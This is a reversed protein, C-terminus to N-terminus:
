SPAGAGAGLGARVEPKGLFREVLRGGEQQMVTREYEFDFERQQPRSSAELAPPVQIQWPLWPLPSPRAPPAPVPSLPRHIRPSRAAPPTTLRLPPAQLPTGCCRSAAFAHTHGTTGLRPGGRPGQMAGRVLADLRYEDAIKVRLVAPNDVSWPSAEASPASQLAAAGGGRPAAAPAAGSGSPGGYTDGGGGAKGISSLSPYM